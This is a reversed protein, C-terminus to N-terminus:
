EPTMTKIESGDRIEENANKVLLDGTKLDGFIEEHDESTRGLKVRVWVAKNNEAKIVFTGIPANVVSSKPVIFTNANGDLPINVEAVMGPLLKKDNNMVDMETRQSRLRTDLAGALRSVNAHFVQNPLGKVTFSVASKQNLYTSFAEPVSIV